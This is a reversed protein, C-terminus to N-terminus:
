TAQRAPRRRQLRGAEWLAQGIGQVVGGIVQGEVIMPNIVKGVDDVGIYRQITVEGTDRDMEVQAIHISNPYTFNSPDYYTEVEMGPELGDPLNHATYAAFALEGFSKSSDPVGKVYVKGHEADYVM